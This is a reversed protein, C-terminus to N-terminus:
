DMCRFFIACGMPVAPHATFFQARSPSENLDIIRRTTEDTLRRNQHMLFNWREAHLVIYRGAAFSLLTRECNCSTKVRPSFLEHLGTSVEFQRFFLAECNRSTIQQVQKKCYSDCCVPCEKRRSIDIGISRGLGSDRIMAQLPNITEEIQDNSCSNCSGAAKVRTPYLECRSLVSSNFSSLRVPSM